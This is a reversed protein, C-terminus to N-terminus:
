SNRQVDKLQQIEKQQKEVVQIVDALTSLGM